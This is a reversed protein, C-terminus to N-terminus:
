LLSDEYALEAEIIERIINDTMDIGKVSKAVAAIITEIDLDPDEIESSNEDFDIDLEGNDDYFDFIADIIKLINNDSVDKNSISNRIFDVAEDEDYIKM